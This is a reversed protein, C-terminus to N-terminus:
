LRGRPYMPFYSERETRAPFLGLLRRTAGRSWVLTAGVDRGFLPQAALAFAPEYFVNPVLARAALARWEPAISALEALPRWEVEYASEITGHM